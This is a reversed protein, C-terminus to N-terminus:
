DFEIDSTPLALEWGPCSVIIADHLGFVYMGALNFTSSEWCSTDRCRTLLPETLFLMFSNLVLRNAMPLPSSHALWCLQLAFCSQRSLNEFPCHLGCAATGMKYADSGCCTLAKASIKRTNIKSHTAILGRMIRWKTKPDRHQSSQCARRASVFTQSTSM